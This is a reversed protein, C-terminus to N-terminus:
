KEDTKQTKLFLFLDANTLKINKSEDLHTLNSNENLFLTCFYNNLKSFLRRLDPKKL